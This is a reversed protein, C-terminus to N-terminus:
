ISPDLHQTTDYPNKVSGLCLKPLFVLGYWVLGNWVLGFWVMKGKFALNDAM